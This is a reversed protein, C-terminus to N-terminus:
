VKTFIGENENLQDWGVLEQPLRIGREFWNGVKSALEKGLWAQCDASLDLKAGSPLSVHAARDLLRQYCGQHATLPPMEVTSLTASAALPILLGEPDIDGFYFLRGDWSLSRVVEVLGIASTKLADGSGYVVATFVRSEQNWRSFSHYTSHNELVLVPRPKGVAPSSEWVIPPPASFCRLLELSLRGPLFLASNKIMELRKERGFLEVSREKVPIMSRQRGGDALFQQVRLLVRLQRADHVTYAFRLEPAWAFSEPDVPLPESLEGPRDLEVWAPLDGSESRDYLRKGRPLVIDGTEALLSLWGAIKTRAEPPPLAPCMEAFAARYDHALVRKRGGATELLRRLFDEATVPTM